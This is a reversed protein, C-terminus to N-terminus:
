HSRRISGLTGGFRDFRSRRSRKEQSAVLSALKPILEQEIREAFSRRQGNDEDGDLLLHTVASAASERAETFRAAKEIPQFAHCGKTLLTLANFLHICAPDKPGLETRLDRYIPEGSHFAKFDTVSYHQRKKEQESAKEAPELGKDFAERVTQIRNSMAKRQGETLPLDSTDISWRGHEKHAELRHSKILYRVQRESKGLAIAAESLSIKMDATDNNSDNLRYTDSYSSYFVV